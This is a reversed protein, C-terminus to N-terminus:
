IGYANLQVPKLFGTQQIRQPLAIFLDKLSVPIM